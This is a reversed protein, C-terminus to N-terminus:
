PSIDRSKDSGNVCLSCEILDLYVQYITFIFIFVLSFLYLVILAFKFACYAELIM